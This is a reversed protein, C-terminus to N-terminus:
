AYNCLGYVCSSGRPCKNNCRGCHKEDVSPNACKGRCCMEGYKCKKGCAGCNLRDAVVDVCQRYCCDPGPSGTARCVRPYKDCTMTARVSEALFRNGLNLPFPTEVRSRDEHSSSVISSSTISPIESRVLTFHFLVFPMCFLNSLKM